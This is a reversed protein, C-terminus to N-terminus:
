HEDPLGWLIQNPKLCILKEGCPHDMPASQNPRFQVRDGFKFDGSYDPGTAIIKGTSAPKRSTIESLDAEVIIGSGNRKEQPKDPIVIVDANVARILKSWEEQTRM